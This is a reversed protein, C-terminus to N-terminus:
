IIIFHPSINSSINYIDLLTRLSINSSTRLFINFSTNARFINKNLLGLQLLKKLNNTTWYGRSYSLGLYPLWYFILGLIVKMKKIFVKINSKKRGILFKLNDRLYVEISGKLGLSNNKNLKEFFIKYIINM